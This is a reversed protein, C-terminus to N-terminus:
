EVVKGEVRGLWGCGGNSETRPAGGSLERTGTGPTLWQISPGTPWSM